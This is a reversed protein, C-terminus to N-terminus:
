PAIRRPGPPEGLVKELQGLTRGLKGLTSDLSTMNRHARYAIYGGVATGAALVGVIVTTPSM